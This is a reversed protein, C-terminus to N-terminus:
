ELVAGFTQFLYGAPAVGAGSVLQVPDTIDRVVSWEM